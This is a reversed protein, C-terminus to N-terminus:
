ECAACYARKARLAGWFFCIMRCIDLRLLRHSVRIEMTLSELCIGLFSEFDNRKNMRDKVARAMNTRFSLRSVGNRVYCQFIMMLLMPLAALLCLLLEVPLACASAADCV